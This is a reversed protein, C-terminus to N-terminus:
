LTGNARLGEIHKGYAGIYQHVDNFYPNLAHEIDAVWKAIRERSGLLIQRDEVSCLVQM